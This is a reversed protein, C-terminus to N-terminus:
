QAVPEHVRRRLLLGSSIALVSALFAYLRVDLDPAGTAPMGPTAGGNSMAVTATRIVPCDVVLGPHVIEYGSALVQAASTISNAQDGPVVDVINHQGAVPQPNGSADFGTVLVYIPVSAVATANNIPPTNMGFDYYFTERGQYWGQTLAFTKPPDTLVSGAQALALPAIWASGVVLAVLGLTLKKFLEKM